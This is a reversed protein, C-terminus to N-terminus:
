SSTVRPHPARPSADPAPRRPGPAPYRPGTRVARGRGSRPVQDAGYARVVRPAPPYARRRRLYSSPDAVDRRGAHPENADPRARIQRTPAWAGRHAGGGRAARSRIVCVRLNACRTPAAGAEVAVAQGPCRHSAALEAGWSGASGGPAIPRTASRVCVWRVTAPARRSARMVARAQPGGGSGRRLGRHPWIPRNVLPDAQPVLWHSDANAFPGSRAGASPDSRALSRPRTPGVSPMVDCSSNRTRQKSSNPRARRVSSPPQNAPGDAPVSRAFPLGYRRSRGPVRHGGVTGVAGGQREM